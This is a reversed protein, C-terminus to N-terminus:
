YRMRSAIKQQTKYRKKGEGNPFIAHPIHVYIWFSLFFFHLVRKSLFTKKKVAFLFFISSIDICSSFIFLKIVNVILFRLTLLFHLLFLINWVYRSHQIIFPSHYYLVIEGNQQIRHFFNIFELCCAFANTKKKKKKNFTLIFLFQIEDFDSKSENYKRRNEKRKTCISVFGNLIITFCNICSSCFM